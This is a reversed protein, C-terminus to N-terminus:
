IRRAIIFYNMVFRKNRDLPSLALCFLNILFALALFFPISIGGIIKGFRGGSLLNNIKYLGFLNFLEGALPFFGAQSKTELIEFGAETLLVNLGHSSYRFFDYPEDHLPYFFPASLLLLGRPKLVRATERLAQTPHDLHELVQTCLVVDFVEERIPLHKVDAWIDPEKSSAPGPHDLGIYHAHKFYDRYPSQGCGLDLAMGSLTQVEGAIHKKLFHISFFQPHLPTGGL